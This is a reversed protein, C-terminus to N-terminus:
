SEDIVKGIVIKAIDKWDMPRSSDTEAGGRSEVSQPNRQAEAKRHAIELDNRLAEDKKDSADWAQQLEQEAEEPRGWDLYILGRYQHCRWIPYILDDHPTREAAGFDDLADQMRNMGYYARGRLYFAYARPSDTVSPDKLVQTLQDVVKPFEKQQLEQTCSDFVTSLQYNRELTTGIKEKEEGHAKRYQELLEENQKKLADREQQLKELESKKQMLSKLDINDPDVEATIYVTYKWVDGTLEPVDKEDTVKLVAASIVRVDDETLQMDQTRSYSEVYVGAKETAARMAEQRAADKAIKPSDNDGMTYVGSAQIIQPAAEAAPKGPVLLFFAALLAIGIYGKKKGM